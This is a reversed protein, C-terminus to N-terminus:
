KKNNRILSFSFNLTRLIFKIKSSWNINWKSHGFLREEFTVDFRKIRLKTKLALHYVYLDLAFDLPPNEWKEYFSKNFLNPQANIDWFFKQFLITEFISMGITFLNDKLPRKIRRGKVLIDNNNKFFKFGLLVDNLDTQLDAHTWGLIDGRATELGKLIGHGYGINKKINILKINASGKILRTIINFSDDISGNNVLIIEINKATIKKCKQILLPMNEAENYCPIIISFLM